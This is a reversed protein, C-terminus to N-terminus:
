NCSPSIESPMVIAVPWVKAVPLRQPLLRWPDTSEMVYKYIANSISFERTPFNFFVDGGILISNGHSM